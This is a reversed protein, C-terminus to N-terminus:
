WWHSAANLANPIASPSAIAFLPLDFPMGLVFPVNQYPLVPKNKLLFYGPGGNLAPGAVDTLRYNRCSHHPHSNEPVVVLIRRRCLLLALPVHFPLALLMVEPRVVLDHQDHVVLCCIELVINVARPDEKGPCFVLFFHVVLYLAQEVLMLVFLIAAPRKLASALNSYSECFGFLPDIFFCTM